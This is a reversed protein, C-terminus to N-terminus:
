SARVRAIFRLVENNLRDSEETLKGSEALMARAAEGTETATRNVDGVVANVRRSSAVASEVSAGIKATAANQIRVAGVISASVDSIESVTGGVAHLAKAAETATLRMAAIQQGIDRTAAATQTALSKVEQAVVAFGRGSEGARAAEITANLALMNTRSAIAAITEVIEGIRSARSSLEGTIATSQSTQESATVAIRQARQMEASISDISRHLEAVAGDVAGVSSEASTSAHAIVRTKEASGAAACVMVEAREVIAQSTINVVGALGQVSEVLGDALAHLEDRRATAYARDREADARRLHSVELENKQFAALTRAISGIEDGRRTEPVTIDRQGGSFRAIFRDLNALPKSVFGRVALLMAVTLALLVGFAALATPREDRAADTAFASLPVEVMVYWPTKVTGLGIPQWRRVIATESEQVSAAPVPANRAAAFEAAIAPDRDAIPKGLSAADTAVVVVGKNSLVFLRGGDPLAIDAIGDRLPALGIDLGLAGSVPDDNPIPASFSLVDITGDGTDIRYPESIEAVGELPTTFLAAQEGETNTFADHTIEIGNQHWYTLYRGTRDSGEANRFASDRGDFADPKWATWAGFRDPNAQLMRKLLIDAVHRDRVNGIWLAAIADATTSVVDFAKKFEGQVRTGVDDAAQESLVRARAEAEARFRQTLFFAAFIVMGLACLCILASLKTGLTVGRFAESSRTGGRKLPASDELRGNNGPFSM